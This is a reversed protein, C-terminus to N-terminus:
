LKDSQTNLCCPPTAAALLTFVSHPVPQVTRPSEWANLGLTSARTVVSCGEARPFPVAFTCLGGGGADRFCWLYWLDGSFCHVHSTAPVLPLLISQLSVTDLLSPCSGEPFFPLSSPGPTLFSLYGFGNRTGSGKKKKKCSGAGQGVWGVNCDGWVQCNECCVLGLGGWM